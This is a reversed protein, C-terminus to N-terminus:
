HNIAPHQIDSTNQTTPLHLFIAMLHTVMFYDQGPEKNTEIMEPAPESWIQRSLEWNTSYKGLLYAEATPLSLLLLYLLKWTELIQFINTFINHYLLCDGFTLRNQQLVNLNPDMRPPHLLISFISHM